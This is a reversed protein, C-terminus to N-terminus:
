IPKQGCIEKRSGVSDLIPKLYQDQKKYNLFYEYKFIVKIYRILAESKICKVEPSSIM